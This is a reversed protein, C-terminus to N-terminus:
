VRWKWLRKRTALPRRTRLTATQGEGESEESDVVVAKESISCEEEVKKKVGVYNQMSQVVQNSQQQQNQQLQQTSPLLSLKRGLGNKGPTQPKSHSLNHVPMVNEKNSAKPRHSSGKLGLSLKKGVSTIKEPNKNASINETREVNEHTQMLEMSGFPQKQGQHLKSSSKTSSNGSKGDEDQDHQNGSSAEHQCLSSSYNPDVNEKNDFDDECHDSMKPSSKPGKGNIKEHNLSYENLVDNEKERKRKSEMQTISVSLSTNHNPMKQDAVKKKNSSASELSLKQSIGHSRKHSPNFELAGHNPEQVLGQVEVMTSDTRTETCQNSCSSEGAGAKAYKETMSRAKHDFAQRNYKYERSAECMLGDDPNPESLLLRVSTLVTSINLSPQWAGKPPLNLIDLCIRGGNDINPHYIPTAFTVIPPQLPYREPIQIKIKFIGKSYVTEEPGEIQADISSLDSQSSLSPFSAGHPPDNLLLKLEKQMRLNLRAEQAM